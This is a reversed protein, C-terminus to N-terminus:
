KPPLVQTEGVTELKFESEKTYLWYAMIPLVLLGAISGTYFVTSVGFADMAWGTVLPGIFHGFDQAANTIGMSAGMRGYKKGLDVNYALAPVRGVTAM